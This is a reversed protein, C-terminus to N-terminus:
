IGEFYISQGNNLELRYLDIMYTVHYNPRARAYPFPRSSCIVPIMKKRQAGKKEEPTWPPLKQIGRDSLSEGSDRIGFLAVGRVLTFSLM